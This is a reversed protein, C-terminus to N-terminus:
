LFESFFHSSVKSVSKLEKSKGFSIKSELFVSASFATLIADFAAQKSAPSLAVSKMFCDNLENNLLVFSPMGLTQVAESSTAFTAFNARKFAM